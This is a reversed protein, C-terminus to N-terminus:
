YRAGVADTKSNLRVCWTWADTEPDVGPKHVERWMASQLAAISSHSDADHTFTEVRIERLMDVVFGHADENLGSELLGSECELFDELGRIVYYGTHEQEFSNEPHPCMLV